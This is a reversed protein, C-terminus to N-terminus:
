FFQAFVMNYLKTGILADNATMAGIKIGFISNSILHYGEEIYGDPHQYRTFLMIIALPFFHYYSIEM